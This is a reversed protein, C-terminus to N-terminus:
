PHGAGRAMALHHPRHHDGRSLFGFFGLGQLRSATAPDASTVTVEVGAPLDRVAVSLGERGDMHRGHAPVMRRIAHLTRGQGTVAARFGGPLDRREVTAGTIVRDMDVLHERFGDVDVANWDTAPDNELIAVMEALAAFASQGTRLPMRATSDAPSSGAASPEHAAGRPLSSLPCDAGGPSHGDRNEHGGAPGASAPAPASDPRLSHISVAEGGGRAPAVASTLTLLALAAVTSVLTSRSM